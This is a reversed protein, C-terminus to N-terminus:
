LSLTSIAWVTIWMVNKSDAIAMAYVSLSIDGLEADECQYWHVPPGVRQAAMKSAWDRVHGVPNAADAFNAFCTAAFFLTICKSSAMGVGIKPAASMPRNACLPHVM